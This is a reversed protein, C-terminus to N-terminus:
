PTKGLVALVAKLDEWCPKKAPPNRLLYSPHFTPILPIERGDATRYALRKGRMSTIGGIDPGCLAKLPTNGLTCIIRPSLLAIQRHLFPLCAAAEAPEPARNGPPRCKVINAIFVSERAYGMAAIMKTLLQGAPGVFPRGSADEEAGPGEGIFLIDPRAAGEGPVTRTRGSCLGCATCAAIQAAIAELTDGAPPAATPSPSSAAAAMPRVPASVVVPLPAPAASVPAAPAIALSAGVAPAPHPNAAPAPPAAPRASEAMKGAFRVGHDRDLEVLAKLTAIVATRDDMAPM